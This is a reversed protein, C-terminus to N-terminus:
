SKRTKKRTKEDLKLGEMKLFTQAFAILASQMQGVHSESVPTVTM